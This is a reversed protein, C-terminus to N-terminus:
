EKLEKRLIFEDEREKRTKDRNMYVEKWGEMKMLDKSKQLIKSEEVRNKLKLLIPRPRTNGDQREEPLRSVTQIEVIDINLKQVMREMIEKASTCQDIDMEMM